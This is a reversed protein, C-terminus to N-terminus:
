FKKVSPCVAFVASYRIIDQCSVLTNPSTYWRCLLGSCVTVLMSVGDRTEGRTTVTVSRRAVLRM